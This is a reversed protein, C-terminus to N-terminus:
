SIEELYSTVDDLNRLALTYSVSRNALHSISNVRDPDSLALEVPTSPRSINAPPPFNTGRRVREVGTMQPQYIGNSIHIM